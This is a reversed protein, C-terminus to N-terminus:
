CHLQTKKASVQQYKGCRHSLALNCYLEQANAKSMHIYSLILMPGTPWIDGVAGSWHVVCCLCRTAVSKIQFLLLPSDLDLHFM